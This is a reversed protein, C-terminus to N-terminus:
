TISGSYGIFTGFLLIFWWVGATLFESEKEQLMDLKKYYYVQIMLIIFVCLAFFLIIGRQVTAGELSTLITEDEYEDAFYHSIDVQNINGARDSLVLFVSRSLKDEEIEMEFKKADADKTIIEEGSVLSVKVPSYDVKFYLIYVDEEEEITLGKLSPPVSDVYFSVTDRLYESEEEIAADIQNEGERWDHEHYYEWLYNEDVETVGIEMNSSIISVDSGADVNSAKGKIPLRPNNYIEGHEPYLIRISKIDGQEAEGVEIEPEGLVVSEEKPRGFMQVVLIVNEGQLTGSVVAVGIDSYDASIINKKHTPSAMWAQHLGESTSFGKGLNEGAYSYEYGAAEIFQWPSEDNPGFHDWYQERFMNNAKAYAASTLLANSELRGLGRKQRERNTLEIIRNSSLTDAYVEYSDLIASTAGNFVFIWLTLIVLAAKTSFFPTYQNEATPIFLNKLM